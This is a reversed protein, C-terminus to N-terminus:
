VEATGGEVLNLHQVLWNAWSRPFRVDPFRLSERPISRKARMKEGPKLDKKEPPWRVTFLGAQSIQCHPKFSQFILYALLVFSRPFLSDSSSDCTCSVKVVRCPVDGDHYRLLMKDGIKPSRGLFARKWKAWQHSVLYIIMNMRLTIKGICDTCGHKCGCIPMGRSFSVLLFGLQRQQPCVRRIGSWGQKRRRIGSWGQKRQNTGCKIMVM